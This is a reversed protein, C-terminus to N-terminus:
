FYIDTLFKKRKYQEIIYEFIYTHSQHKSTFIMRELTIRM